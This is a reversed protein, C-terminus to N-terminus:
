GSRRGCGAARRGKAAVRLVSGSPEVLVLGHGNTGLVRGRVGFSRPVVAYLAHIPGTAAQLRGAADLTVQQEGFGAGFVPSCTYYAHSISLNEFATLLVTPQASRQGVLVVGSDVGVARDVWPTTGVLDSLTSAKGVMRAGVLSSLVLFALATMVIAFSPRPRLLAYLYALGFVGGVVGAVLAAHAIPSLDGKVETGFIQMGFSDAVITSNVVSSFPITAPLLAAAAAVVLHARVGVRPRVARLAAVMAVLFLPVLYILYREHIRQQALGSGTDYAAADFAVELVVWVMAAVAVAGFLLGDGRFGSRVLVYGALLAGAFPIVGIAWDLEALHHLAIELVRFPHARATGVSAYRGALPLAGGNAVTRILVATVAAGVTGFLLRHRSVARGASRLRGEGAPRVLAVLLVATLAAPALAVHQLRAACALLMSALLVADNRASPKRLARLMAWIAVLFLPYAVCESMEVSTYYMLPAALSLAAVGVARPRPLVFRAIGYVPFVSLSMLVANEVKVWEYALQASSTLAYIPSLLVPYLPSYSLGSKGFLAFHGTRALSQAMREYGLEDMFVLPSHIHAGLVTRLAISAAALALLSAAVVVRAHARVADSLKAAGARWHDVWRTVALDTSDLEGLMSIPKRAVM